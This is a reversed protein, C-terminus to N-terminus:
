YLFLEFDRSICSVKLGGMSKAVARFTENAM